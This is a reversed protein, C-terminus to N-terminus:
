TLFNDGIPQLSLTGPQVNIGRYQWKMFSVPVVPVAVLSALHEGSFVMEPPFKNGTRRLFAANRLHPGGEDKPKKSSGRQEDDNETKKIDNEISGEILEIVVPDQKRVVKNWRSVYERGQTINHGCICVFSLEFSKPLPFTLDLGVAGSSIQVNYERTILHNEM